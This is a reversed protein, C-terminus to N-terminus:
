GEPTPSPTQWLVQLVCSKTSARTMLPHPSTSDASGKSSSSYHEETLAMRLTSEFRIAQEQLAQQHRDTTPKFSPRLYGKVANILDRKREAGWNGGGPISLDKNWIGKLASALKEYNEVTLNEDYVLQAVAVFLAHFHRPVGRPNQQNITLTAYDGDAFQLTKTLLDLITMFRREVEAPGITALRSTVLPAATTPRGVVQSYASDRYESGSSTLPRLILDLLIDLVLEEDRSERVADRSLIGQRVWFINGDYIGTSLERNTISIKPM